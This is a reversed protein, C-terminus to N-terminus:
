IGLFCKLDSVDDGPFATSSNDDCKWILSAGKCAGQIDKTEGASIPMM